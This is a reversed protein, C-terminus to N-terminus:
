AVINEKTNILTIEGRKKATKDDDFLYWETDGKKCYVKYHGRGCSESFVTFAILTYSVEQQDTNDAHPKLTIVEKFPLEQHSAQTSKKGMTEVQTQREPFILLLQPYNCFTMDAFYTTLSKAQVNVGACKGHTIPKKVVPDLSFQVIGEDTQIVDGGKSPNTKCYKCFYNFKVNNSSEKLIL